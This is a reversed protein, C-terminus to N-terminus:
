KKRGSRNCITVGASIRPRKQEWHNGKTIKAQCFFLWSEKILDHLPGLLLFIRNSKANSFAVLIVSASLVFLVGMPVLEQGRGAQKM